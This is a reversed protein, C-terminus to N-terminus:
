ALHFAPRAMELVRMALGGRTAHMRGRETRFGMAEYFEVGSRAATVRAREHGDAYIRQLARRMLEAGVGQRAYAPDVYLGRIEDARVGCFGVVAGRIVAVEIAEGSAAAEAYGDAKLGHAWSRAIEPGYARAGELLIARRHLRMLAPGDEPGMRRHEIKSEM